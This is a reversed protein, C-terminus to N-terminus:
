KYLRRAFDFAERRSEQLAADRDTIVRSVRIYADAWFNGAERAKESPKFSDHAPEYRRIIQDLSDIM